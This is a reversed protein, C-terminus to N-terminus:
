NKIDRNDDEVKEHIQNFEPFMLKLAFRAEQKGEKKRTKVGLGGINEVDFNIKEIEKTM